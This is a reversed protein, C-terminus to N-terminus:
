RKPEGRTERTIENCILGGDDCTTKSATAKKALANVFDEKGWPQIEYSHQTYIIAVPANTITFVSNRELEGDATL